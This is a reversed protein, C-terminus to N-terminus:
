EKWCTVTRENLVKAESSPTVLRLRVVMSWGDGVGEGRM